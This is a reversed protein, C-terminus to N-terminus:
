PIELRFRQRFEHLLIEKLIVVWLVICPVAKLVYPQIWNQRLDHPVLDTPTISAFVFVGILLATEWCQQREKQWYWVAAGVLAIVFTPSEAKHNFIVVWLMWSALIPLPSRGRFAQLLTAVAMMLLGVVTVSVKSPQLGFWSELWGTVSLGVSASHDNQLLEGWWIYNQLLKGWGVVFAPSFALFVGWFVLGLAFVGWTRRYFVVLPAAFIGFIKLFGGAVALGAASFPRNRELAIYCGLFLAAMLGNSQHNQLNIMLEPLVFWAAWHRHKPALGPLALLAALLPLANLLNWLPLGLTDPLQQFPAMFVAFAPSYKYLDWTEINGAYPNQGTSFYHWSLRFIRYNEYNTFGKENPNLNLKQVAAIIALLSYAAYLPWEMEFFRM